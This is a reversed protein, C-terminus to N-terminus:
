THNEDTKRWAGSRDDLGCRYSGSRLNWFEEIRRTRIMWLMSALPGETTCGVM